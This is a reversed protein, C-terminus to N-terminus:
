PKHPRLAGHNCQLRLAWSSHSLRPPQGPSGTGLLGYLRQPRVAVNCQVNCVIEDKLGSILRACWTLSSYILSFPLCQVNSNSFPSCQLSNRRPNKDTHHYHLSIARWFNCIIIWHQCKDTHNFYQCTYCQNRKPRTETRWIKRAGHQNHNRWSM